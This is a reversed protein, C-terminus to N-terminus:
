RDDHERLLQHGALDAQNRAQEKAEGEADAADARRHEALDGVDLANIKDVVKAGVQRREAEEGHEQRINFPRLSLRQLGRRRSSEVSQRWDCRFADPPHRASAKWALMRAEGARARSHNRKGREAASGTSARMRSVARAWTRLNPAARVVITPMASSVPM